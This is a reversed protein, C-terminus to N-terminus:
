EMILSSPSFDPLIKEYISRHDDIEGDLTQEYEKVVIDESEGTMLLNVITQGNRVQYSVIRIYAVALQVTSDPINFNSQWIIM